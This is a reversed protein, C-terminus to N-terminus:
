VVGFAKAAIALRKRVTEENTTGSSTVRPTDVDGVLRSLGIRVEDVSASPNAALLKMCAIVSAELLATNVRQGQRRLVDRAGAESLLTTAQGFLGKITDAHLGSLNRHDRLFKNLYRKMPTAYEASRHYLALIRLILEHDRMRLSVPGYIQRWGVEQNLESLLSVLAGTNLAVRIEHPTLQTGGSNLREFVQYISEASADSKDGKVIIAQIFSNDLMRKLSPSLTEYRLGQFQEAVNTLVFEKGRHIGKYFAALTKLRQQGDLVLYSKDEQQVLVIGPIPYGLLLSEIFRDMQPRTWVFGRQFPSVDIADEAYGFNPVIIDGRDLRRVLGEADFDTGSYSIPYGSDKEAEFLEAKEDEYLDVADADTIAPATEM